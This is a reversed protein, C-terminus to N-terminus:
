FLVLMQLQWRNNDIIILELEKFVEFDIDRSFSVGSQAVFIAVKDKLVQGPTRNIGM